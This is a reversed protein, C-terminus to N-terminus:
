QRNALVIRPRAGDSPGVVGNAELLDMLRAARAYGVRLRRQLLSASAKGLENVIRVADDYMDEHQSDDETTDINIFDHVPFPGDKLLLQSICPYCIDLEEKSIKTGVFQALINKLKGKEEKTTASNLYDDISVSKIKNDKRFLEWLKDPYTDELSLVYDNGRKTLLFRCDLGLKAQASLLAKQRSSDSKAVGNPMYDNENYDVFVVYRESWVESFFLYKSLDLMNHIASSTNGDGAQFPVHVDARRLQGKLSDNLKLADLFSKKSAEEVLMVIEPYGLDLDDLGLMKAIAPIADSSQIGNSSISSLQESGSFEVLSGDYDFMYVSCYEPHNLASKVIEINHTTAFLQAFQKEPLQELLCNIERLIIKRVAPFLEDGLDDIILIPKSGRMERIASILGAIYRSGGALFETRVENFNEFTFQGGSLNQIRLSRQKLNVKMLINNADNLDPLTIHADRNFSAIGGFPREQRVTSDVGGDNFPTDRDSLIAVVETGGVPKGNKEVQWRDGAKPIIKLSYTGPSTTYTFSIQTEPEFLSHLRPALHKILIDQLGDGNLQSLKSVGMLLELVSSKGSGNIGVLLNIRNLKKLEISKGRFNKFGSIKISDIMKDGLIVRITDM